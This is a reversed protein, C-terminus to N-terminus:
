RRRESTQVAVMARYTRLMDALLGDDDHEAVPPDSPVWPLQQLIEEDISAIIALIARGTNPAYEGNVECDECEIDEIGCDGNDRAVLRLSCETDNWGGEISVQIRM